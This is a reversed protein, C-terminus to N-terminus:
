ACHPNLFRDAIIFIIEPSDRMPPAFTLLEVFKCDIPFRSSIDVLFTSDNSDGFKLDDFPKIVHM